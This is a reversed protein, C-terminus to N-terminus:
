GTVIASNNPEVHVVLKCISEMHQRKLASYLVHYCLDHATYQYVEKFLPLVTNELALYRASM